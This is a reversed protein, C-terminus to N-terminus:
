VLFCATDSIKETHCYGFIVFFEYINLNWRHPLHKSGVFSLNSQLLRVLLLILTQPYNVISIQIVERGRGAEWSGVGWEVVEWVGNSVRM